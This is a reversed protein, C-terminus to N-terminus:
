ESYRKSYVKGYLSRPPPRIALEAETRRLVALESTDGCDICESGVSVGREIKFSDDESSM